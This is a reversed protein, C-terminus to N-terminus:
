AASVRELVSSLLDAWEDRADPAPPDALPPHPPLQGVPVWRGGAVKRWRKPNHQRNILPAQEAITRREAERAASMTPYEVADHHHYCRWITMWDPCVQTQRHMYIRRDVDETVGVYLLAGDSAFLRYVFHPYNRQDESTRM